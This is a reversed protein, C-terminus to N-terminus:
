SANVRFLFKTDRLVSQTAHGFNFSKLKHGDASNPTTHCLNQTEQLCAKLLKWCL